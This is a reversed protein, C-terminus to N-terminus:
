PLLDLLWGAGRVSAGADTARATLGRDSTVVTVTRGARVLRDAESPSRTTGRATPVFWRSATDGDELARAKGEVM